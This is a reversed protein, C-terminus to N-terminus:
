KDCQMLTSRCISNNSFFSPSNGAINLFQMLAALDNYEQVTLCALFDFEYCECSNWDLKKENTYGECCIKFLEECCEPCPPEADRCADWWVWQENLFGECCLKVRHQIPCKEPHCPDCDEGVEKLYFSGDWCVCCLCPICNCLEFLSMEGILGIFQDTSITNANTIYPTNSITNIMDLPPQKKHLDQGPIHM